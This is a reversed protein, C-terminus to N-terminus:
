GQREGAEYETKLDVIKRFFDLISFFKEDFRKIRNEYFDPKQLGQTSGIKWTIL